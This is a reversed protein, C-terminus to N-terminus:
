ADHYTVEGSLQVTGCFGNTGGAPLSCTVLVYINKYKAANGAADLYQYRKGLNVNVSALAPKGYVATGGNPSPIYPDTSTITRDYLVQYDHTNVLSFSTVGPHIFVKSFTSTADTLNGSTGTSWVENSKIVLIRCKSGFWYGQPTTSPNLGQHYYMARIRLRLDSIKDGIRQNEATGPQIWSVPAMAYIKSNVLGQDTGQFTIRKREIVSALQRKVVQKAIAKVTRPRYRRVGIRRAPAVKATM